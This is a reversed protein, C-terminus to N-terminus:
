DTGEDNPTAIITKAAFVQNGLSVKIIFDSPIILDVQSGFRIMGYWDGRGIMQGEKVYNDIRRVLRSAIQVIGVQVKDNQIVLTHRENETESVPSKLSLFKGRRSLNLVIKGSIPAANKHVDFPTMNIGILWCPATLLNTKTLEALRSIRGKKVSIAEQDTEIQKIYIIKGDAPSLISDPDSNSHRVPIRWFRIM